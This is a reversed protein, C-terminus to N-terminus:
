LYYMYFKKLTMCLHQLLLIVEQYLRIPHVKENVYKRGQVTICANELIIYIIFQSYLQVQISLLICNQHQEM